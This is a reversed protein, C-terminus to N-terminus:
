KIKVATKVAPHVAKTGKLPWCFKFAAPLYGTADTGHCVAVTLM